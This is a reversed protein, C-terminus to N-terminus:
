FLHSKLERLSLLETTGKCWTSCAMNCTILVRHTARSRCVVAGQGSAHVHQLCNAACHSQLLDQSAGRLIMMMTTTTTTTATTAPPPPPRPTAAITTTTTTTSSTMIIMLKGAVSLSQRCCCQSLVQPVTTTTTPQTSLM